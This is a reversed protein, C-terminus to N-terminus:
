ADPPKVGTIEELKRLLDGQVAENLAEQKPNRVKSHYWYKGSVGEAQRGGEALIVYTDVTAHIDGSASMGGM